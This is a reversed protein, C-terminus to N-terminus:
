FLPLLQGSGNQSTLPAIGGGGRAEAAMHLCMRGHGRSQQSQSFHHDALTELGFGLRSGAAGQQLRVGCRSRNAGAAKTNM